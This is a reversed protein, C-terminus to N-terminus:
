EFYERPATGIKYGVDGDFPMAAIQEASAAAIIYNCNRKNETVGFVTVGHEELRGCELELLYKTREYLMDMSMEYYFQHEGYLKSIKNKYGSIQEETLDPHIYIDSLETLRNIEDNIKGMEAQIGDFSFGNVTYESLFKDAAEEHEPCYDYLDINIAYLLADNGSNEKLEERLTFSLNATGSATLDDTAINEFSDSFVISDKGASVYIDSVATEERMVSFTDSSATESVVTNETDANGCGASLAILAATLIFIGNFSRINM